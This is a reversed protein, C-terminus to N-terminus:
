ENQKLRKELLGLLKSLCIVVILYILAVAILPLFADYTQSRIIDGGKTLDELAIYGSVSTEKLLVIFENGLAPLVNKLAQPLIIFLMSKGYSLGLSRGAELQGKDISMIGARIIEAVYAGSNLGFALIAVFVKNIDVAGFIVFYIILLQVVVPTGRIVTLYVRCIWDLLKWKGTQDASSRVVAVGFGILIGLLVAGAAVQLTVLFGRILYYFRQNDIFNVKCEELFYPIRGKAKEKEAVEKLLTKKKNLYKDLIEQLTGDKKMERLTDNFLLLLEPRKKSIAFAYEESTLAEPLRKLREYEKHLFVEAPANDLVIADVKGALLAAVALGANAYRQPQQINKTVYQDGTTGHQVGIRKGKMEKPHRIKSNHPILVIQQATIYSTTFNVMRKREETVTIGSAAVDAKGTQVAAIVSDFSMDEIKLKLGNRRAIEGVIEPDIGVIKGGKRFEYPPFTAETVMILRKEKKKGCSTLFLAGALLPLILLYVFFKKM